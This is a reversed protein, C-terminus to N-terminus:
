KSVKFAFYKKIANALKPGLKRQKKGYTKISIVDTSYTLMASLRVTGLLEGATALSIGPITALLKKDMAKDVHSLSQMVKKSITRGNPYKINRLQELSVNGQLIDQINHKIMFMDAMTASIGPFKAWMERVVDIDSKTQRQTLLYTQDVPMVDEVQNIQRSVIPVIQTYDQQEEINNEDPIADEATNDTSEIPVEVAVSNNVIEDNQKSPKENDDGSGLINGAPADIPATLNATSTTSVGLLEEKITGMSKTMRCLVGATDKTDETFIFQIKDRFMAHFMNSELIDYRIHGVKKEPRSIHKGEIIYILDAGTKKKLEVLKTKQRSLRGDKLSASFDELSKREIIVKIEGSCNVIAYDSIQLQLIKYSITSLETVTHRTVANERHDIWLTYKTKKDTNCYM